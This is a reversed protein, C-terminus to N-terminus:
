KKIRQKSTLLISSLIKIMQKTENSLDDLRDASILNAEEVLRIWYASEYAEKHAISMKAIFDAKSQAGQAEHVNAGISTGSRLLQKGLVRGISDKELERYLKIIRLSYKFSREVINTKESKM